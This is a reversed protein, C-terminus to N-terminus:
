AAKRNGSNVNKYTIFVMWALLGGSIATLLQNTGMLQLFVKPVINFRFYVNASIFLLLYKALAALFLSALYNLYPFLKRFLWVLVFNGFWIFPLFYVLFHTLPGFIIGRSLVGLSPFVVLFLIFRIPLFIASLILFANVLTGVLWQPHGLFLPVFFSLLLLSVFVLISLHTTLKIPLTLAISKTEM